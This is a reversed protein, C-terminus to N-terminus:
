RNPWAKATILWRSFGHATIVANTSHYNERMLHMNKIPFLRTKERRAHSEKENFELNNM